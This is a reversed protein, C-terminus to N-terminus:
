FRLSASAGVYPTPNLKYHTSGKDEFNSTVLDGHTLYGAFLSANFIPACQYNLAFEGGWNRYQIIGDPNMDNSDLRHRTNIIRGVVALSWNSTMNYIVSLNTPYLINISWKPPLQIDIGIIPWIKHDHIGSRTIIGVSTGIYENVAYRGYGAVFLLSSRSGLLNLDINGTVEAQFTWADCDQYRVGVALYGNNFYDTNFLPNDKWRFLTNQYGVALSYALDNGCPFNYGFSIDGEGFNMEDGKVDPTEFSANSTVYGRAKVEFHAPFSEQPLNFSFDSLSSADAEQGLLPSTAALATMLPIIKKM